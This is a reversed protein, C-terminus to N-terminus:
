LYGRWVLVAIVAILLFFLGYGVFAVMGAVTDRRRRAVDVSTLHRVCADYADAVAGM